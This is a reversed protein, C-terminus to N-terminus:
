VTVRGLYPVRRLVYRHALIPGAIGATLLVPFHFLLFGRGDWAVLGVFIGKVLGIFLTNMLYISYTYNSLLQLAPRDGTAGAAASVAYFAPLSCLGVVSKSAHDPLVAVALFALLFVSTFLVAHRLFLAGLRERREVFAMGLAFYFSYECFQDAAAARPMEFLHTMLHLVATVCVVAATSGRLLRLLLPFVLYFELLVYIFWLSRAASAGPHTFVELLSRIGGSEFNDVHMLHQSVSKATWILVSFLALGPLLRGARREVYDVYGRVNEFGRYTYGFVAGSVAMFVPMHFKYVLYRLVVYWQNDAPDDGSAGVHGLVVLFIAIGKAM